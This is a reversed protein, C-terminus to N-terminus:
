VIHVGIFGNGRDLDHVYGDGGLVAEHEKTFGVEQEGRGAEVVM